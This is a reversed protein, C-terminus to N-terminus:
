LSTRAAYVKGLSYRQGFLYTLSFDSHLEFLSATTSLLTVPVDRRSPVCVESTCYHTEIDLELLSASRAFRDANTVQRHLPNGFAVHLVFTTCFALLALLM